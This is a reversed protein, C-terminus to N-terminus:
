MIKTAILFISSLQLQGNSLINSRYNMKSDQFQAATRYYERSIHTQKERTKCKKIYIYIKRKMM